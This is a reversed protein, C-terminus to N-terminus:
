QLKGRSDKVKYIVEIEAVSTMAAEKDYVVVTRSINMSSQLAIFSRLVYFDTALLIPFVM